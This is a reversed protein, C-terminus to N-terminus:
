IYNYAIRYLYGVVQPIYSPLHHLAFRFLIVECWRRNSFFRVTTSSLLLRTVNQFRATKHCATATKSAPSGIFQNSCVLCGHINTSKDSLLAFKASRISHSLFYQFQLKDRISAPYRGVTTLVVAIVGSPLVERHSIEKWVLTCEASGSNLINLSIFSFVM